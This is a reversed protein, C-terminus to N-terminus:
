IIDKKINNPLTKLYNYIDTEESLVDSLISQYKPEKLKAEVLENLEVNRWSTKYETSKITKKINRYKDLVKPNSQYKKFVQEVDMEGIDLLKVKSVDLIDEKFIQYLNSLYLRTHNLNVVKEKDEVFTKLFDDLLLKLLKIELPKFVHSSPITAWDWDVSQIDIFDYIEKPNDFNDEIIKSYDKKKLFYEHSGDYRDFSSIFEQYLGSVTRKYPNRYLLIIDRDSTKNFAEEIVQVGEEFNYDISSKDNIVIELNNKLKDTTPSYNYHFAKGFYAQTMRSAVKPFTSVICKDNYWLDGSIKYNTEM